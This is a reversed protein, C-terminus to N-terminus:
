KIIWIIIIILILISNLINWVLLVNKYKLLLVLTSAMTLIVDKFGDKPKVNNLDVKKYIKYNKRFFDFLLNTGIDIAENDTIDDENEM